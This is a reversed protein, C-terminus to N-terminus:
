TPNKPDMKLSRRRCTPYGQTTIALIRSLPALMAGVQAVVQVLKAWSPELKAWSPELKAGVHHKGIQWLKTCVQRYKQGLKIWRTAWSEFPEKFFVVQILAEWVVGHLCFVRCLTWVWLHKWLTNSPAVTVRGTHTKYIYPDILVINPGCIM